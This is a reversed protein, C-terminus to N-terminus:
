VGAFTLQIQKYHSFCLLDKVKEPQKFVQLDSGYLNM